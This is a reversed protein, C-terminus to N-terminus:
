SKPQCPTVKRSSRALGVNVRVRANAWYQLYRRATTYAERADMGTARYRKFYFALNPM